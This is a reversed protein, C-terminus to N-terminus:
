WIENKGDHSYLSASFAPNLFSAFFTWRSISGTGVQVEVQGYPLHSLTVTCSTPSSASGVRVMTLETISSLRISFRGTFPPLENIKRQEGLTVM